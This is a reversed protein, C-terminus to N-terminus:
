PDRVVLTQDPRAKSKIFVNPRPPAPTSPLSKDLLQTISTPM